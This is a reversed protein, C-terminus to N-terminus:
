AIPPNESLLETLLGALRQRQRPLRLREAAIIQQIDSLARQFDDNVILYDYEGHHSMEEVAKATRRAIVAADDQGRKHLRELLAQRSPPLVFLTIADPFRARVQQAGQWDIELLLDHGVALQTDLNAKSTGYFNGFVEASEIFDGAAQQQAFETHSVFHYHQGETEGSRKPRTTHSVSVRINADAAVLANVLSTKGAGSPASIVLLLGPTRADASM